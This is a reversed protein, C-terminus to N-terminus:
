TVKHGTFTSELLLDKGHSECNKRLSLDSMDSDELQSEKLRVEPKLNSTVPCYFFGILTLAYPTMRGLLLKEESRSNEITIADADM